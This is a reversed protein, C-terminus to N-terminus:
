RPAIATRIAAARVRARSPGPISVGIAQFGPWVSPRPASSPRARAVARAGRLAGSQRRLASDYLAARTSRGRGARDAVAAVSEGSLHRGRPHIGERAARARSAAGAARRCDIRRSVAVRAPAPEAGRGGHADAAIRDLLHRRMRSPWRSSGIRLWTTSAARLAHAPRLGALAVVGRPLRSGRSSRGRWRTASFSRGAARSRRAHGARWVTREALWWQELADLFGGHRSAARRRYAVHREADLWLAARPVAALM